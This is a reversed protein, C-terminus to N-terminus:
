ARPLRLELRRVAAEVEARVEARCDESHLFRRLNYLGVSRLREFAAIAAARQSPGGRGLTEWAVHVIAARGAGFVCSKRRANWASEIEPLIAHAARGIWTATRLVRHHIRRYAPDRLLKGLFRVAEYATKSQSDELVSRFCDLCVALLHRDSTERAVSLVYRIDPEGARGRRAIDIIREQPTMEDSEFVTGCEPCRNRPLGRLLYGCVACRPESDNPSREHRLVYWIVVVFVCLAFVPLLCYPALLIDSPM